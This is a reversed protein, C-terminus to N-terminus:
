KKGEQVAQIIYFQKEGTNIKSETANIAAVHGGDLLVAHDLGLKKAYSNVEYGWMSKVYCLYVYGRKVGIMTHNTKRLVDAYRGVFGESPPDYFDLLGCGGIAWRTETPLETSYTCRKVCFTGDNLRYLVSEPKGLWAHCAYGCVTKGDAVLISCPKQSSSFSGSIANAYNRLPATVRAPRADKAVIVPQGFITVSLPWVNVGLAVALDVLTQPGISNDAVAGVRDQLALVLRKEEPTSGSVFKM